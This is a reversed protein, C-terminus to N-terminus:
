PTVEMMTLRHCIMGDLMALGSPSLCGANYLKDCKGELRHLEEQTSATQIRKSLAARTERFTDRITKM